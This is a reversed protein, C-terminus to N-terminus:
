NCPSAWLSVSVEPFDIVLGLVVSLFVSAMGLLSARGIGRGAISCWHWAGVFGAVAAGTVATAGDSDLANLSPSFKAYPALAQTMTAAHAAGVAAPVAASVGGM